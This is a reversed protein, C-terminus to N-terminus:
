FLLNSSMDGMWASSQWFQSRDQGGQYPIAENQFVDLGLLGGPTQDGSVYDGVAELDLWSFDHAPSFDMYTPDSVPNALASQLQFDTSGRPEASRSATPQTKPRWLLELLRSYRAGIDDPGASARKLVETTRAVLGQVKAEESPLMMGFSRAKYLFVASYIGYLYFRLPMFHLHREPDVSDVLITLYANAADVSEYIFRSDQMSAVNKFTARLRERHTSGDTRPRALCQSIAAQFAFATTYLRLYEYSLQLTARMPPSCDLPGWLSKWRLIALRFDDVYKVYDGMLMMQNSTRMGSYLVEHVNGYLQTLDLMAQYIKSYDEDGEKIPQLSPFDHSSLGTMPGPGRSWFARGIRVSILRDSVYASAWALRRRAESEQDGHPDGRFSTRDLGIFYGSRLALGVHMWAARDEEGRGVREIRPRLGQPEWEALLLLAEVAEVDCEAGAAIGSILEHMYKSCYEHIEPREILDKSAITLVATLLHKENNAFDDLAAYEFYKRPVLPLYPHFNEAYRTILQWVIGSDLARSHVLRYARIGTASTNFEPLIGSRTGRYASISESRGSNGIRTEPVAPTSKTAIDTLCQWADSPNRPVTDIAAEEDGDIAVVATSSTSGEASPDPPLFVVPGPYSTGSPAGLSNLINPSTRAGTSGNKPSYESAPTFHKIKNKRIRRGGRNSGGLVCDRNERVCRQCPPKGPNGNSDLDCRSKRQRCHLCARSVRKGAAQELQRRSVEDNSAEM